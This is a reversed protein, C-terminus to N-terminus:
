KKWLGHLNCFEYVAEVADGESLMFEAKPEDGPKLDKRYICGNKTELAIFQIYHEELMPHVTSGVVVSVKLGDATVEPVHKELAGDTTNPTLELMKEGCCMVPVGKDVVKEVVNRCHTCLLYKVSM